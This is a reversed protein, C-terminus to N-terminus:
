FAYILKTNLAYATDANAGPLNYVDGPLFAALGVHYMFNKYINFTTILNIEQGVHKRDAGQFAGVPTNITKATGTAGSVAGYSGKSTDDIYLYNANMRVWSTPSYEFNLRWYTMGTFAFQREHYYGMQAANMWFFVTRDNGFISASESGTPNTYAKIKDNRDADNGPAYFFELGFFM